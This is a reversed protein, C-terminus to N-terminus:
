VDADDRIKRAADAWATSENMRGHGLLHDTMTTGNRTRAKVFYSFGKKEIRASPYAAEVIQRDSM